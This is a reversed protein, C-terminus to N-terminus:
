VVGWVGKLHSSKGQNVKFQSSNEIGSRGIEVGNGNTKESGQSKSPAVPLCGAVTMQPFCRVKRLGARPREERGNADM